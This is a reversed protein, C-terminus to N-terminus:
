LCSIRICFSHFQLLKIQEKIDKKVSKVNENEKKSSMLQFKLSLNQLIKARLNTGERLKEVLEKDISDYLSNSFEVEEGPINFDNDVYLLYAELEGVREVLSKWEPLNKNPFRM